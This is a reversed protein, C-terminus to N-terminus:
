PALTQPTIGAPEIILVLLEAPGDRGSTLDYRMGPQVGLLPSVRGENWNMSPLTPEVAGPQFYFRSIEGSEVRMAELGVPEYPGIHTGAPLTVQRLSVGVPGFALKEWDSPVSRSLEEGRVGDPLALAPAGSNERGMIVVGVLQVPEDGAVSIEAAATYEPYIAADGPGLTVVTQPPIAEVRAGGRSQVQLPAALRLRYHGSQVVEAGVGGSVPWGPCGCSPGALATLIAGPPITLRYFVVEKDGAPLQELGFVAEALVMDGMSGSAAELAQVLAPTWRSDGPAEAAQQLMTAYGVALTLLLLATTAVHSIARKAFAPMRRGGPPLRVPEAARGHPTREPSVTPDPENAAVASVGLPSRLREPHVAM